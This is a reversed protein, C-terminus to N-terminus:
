FALDYRGLVFHWRPLRLFHFTNETGVFRFGYHRQFKRNVWMPHRNKGLFQCVWAQKVFFIPLGMGTQCFFNAFEQRNSLFFPLSMCTQCFLQCVWAQKVFYIAFEHRNSLFRKVSFKGLDKWVGFNSTFFNDFEHMNSLFFIPFEGTQWFFQCVWAEKVFFHKVIKPVGHPHITLKLSMVSETGVFSFYYLCLLFHRRAWRLFIRTSENGLFSFDYRGLM